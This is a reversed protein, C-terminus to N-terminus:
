TLCGTLREVMKKDQEAEDLMEKITMASQVAEGTNPDFRDVPVTQNLFTEGNTQVRDNLEALLIDTQQTHGISDAGDFLNLDTDGTENIVPTETIDQGTLVKTSNGEEINKIAEDLTKNHELNGVDDPLINQSNVFDDIESADDLAKISADPEYPTGTMRAKAKNVAEIGSALQKKTLQYLPAVSEAAGRLVFGGAGAAAVNTVFTNLDYPLKLDKYWDAVETQIVAESGANIVADRLALRLVNSVVSTALKAKGGGVAFDIATAGLNVPDKIASWAYGTFEGVAGMTTQRAAVDAQELETQKQKDSIQKYLTQATLGQYEPVTDSNNKIFDFIEKQKKEISTYNWLEETYPKNALRKNPIAFESEVEYPNTLGANTKKNINDVIPQWAKKMENRRSSSLGTISHLKESAKLNEIFGTEEGGLVPSMTPYATQNDEYIFGM